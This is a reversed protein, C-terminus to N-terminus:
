GRALSRKFRAFWALALLAALASNTSREHHFALNCGGSVELPSGPAGARAADASSGGQGANSTAMGGAEKPCAAGASFGNSGGAAAPLLAGDHTIGESTCLIRESGCITFPPVDEGCLVIPLSYTANPARTRLKLCDSTGMLDSFWPESRLHVYESHNGAADTVTAEVPLASTVAVCTGEMESCNSVRHGFRYSHFNAEPPAPVASVPGAGTTFSLSLSEVSEPGAPRGLKAVLTYTTNPQLAKEFTVEIIAQQASALRAAIADGAASTLIVTADRLDVENSFFPVVDTPVGEAGDSPYGRLAPPPTIWSCASATRNDFVGIALVAGAAAIAGLRRWTRTLESMSGNPAVSCVQDVLGPTEGAAENIARDSLGLHDGIALRRSTALIEGITGMVWLM